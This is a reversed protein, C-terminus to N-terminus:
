KSSQLFPISLDRRLPPLFLCSLLSVEHTRANLVEYVEKAVSIPIQRREALSQLYQQESKNLRVPLGM